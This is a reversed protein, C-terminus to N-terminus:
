GVLVESVAVEGLGLPLTMTQGGRLTQKHLYGDAEPERYVEIAKGEVNVIWCEPIGARAYLPLKVMRDKQLTTDAVEIVLYVEEPRPHHDVYRTLPAQIIALDPEPETYDDIQIPNQITLSAQTGLIPLLVQAFQNVCLAHRKGIPSMPIIKGCLLEVREDDGIIGHHAMQYYESVSILRQTLAHIASRELQM